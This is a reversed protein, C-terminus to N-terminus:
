AIGRWSRTADGGAGPRSIAACCCATEGISCVRVTDRTTKLAARDLRTFAILADIGAGYLAADDRAEEGGQASAMHRRAATPLATAEGPDADAAQRLLDIGCEFAADAAADPVNRLAQLTRRLATAATPEGSWRDLAIGILRPLREAYEPEATTPDAVALTALVTLPDGAGTVAVRLAGELFAAALLPRAGQALRHGALLSDQLPGGHSRV